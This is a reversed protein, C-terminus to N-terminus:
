TRMGSGANEEDESRINLYEGCVPCYRIIGAFPWYFRNRCAICMLEGKVYAVELKKYRTFEYAKAKVPKRTDLLLVIGTLLLALAMIGYGVFLIVYDTGM